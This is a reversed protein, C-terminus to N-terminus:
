DQEYSIRAGLNAVQESVYAQVRFGGSHDEADEPQAPGLHTAAQSFARQRFDAVGREAATQPRCIQRQAM